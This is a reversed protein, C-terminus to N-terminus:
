QGMVNLFDSPELIRVMRYIKLPLLHKRDGTVLYRAKGIIATELIMNDTEKEEIVHIEGAPEFM